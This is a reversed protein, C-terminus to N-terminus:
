FQYMKVNLYNLILLITVIIKSQYGPPNPTLYVPRSLKGGLRLLKAYLVIRSLFYSFKVQIINIISIMVNLYNLILFSRLIIKSQYDPPHPDLYVPRSLKGGM